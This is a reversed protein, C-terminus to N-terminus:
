KELHTSFYDMYGLWDTRSFYHCGPRLHYAINGSAFREGVMPLRDPCVFGVKGNQEYYQGVAYACMYQNYQDAWYDEQASGHYMHRPYIGVVLYHQDCPMATENGAYQYYNECFWWPFNKTIDAITEPRDVSRTYCGKYNRHNRELADGACGSDNAFCFKIHYYLIM